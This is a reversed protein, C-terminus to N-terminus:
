KTMTNLTKTIEMVKFKEINRDINYMENQNERHPLKKVFLGM